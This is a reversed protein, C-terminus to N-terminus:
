QCTASGRPRQGVPLVQGYCAIEAARRREDQAAASRAAEADFNRRAEVLGERYRQDSAEFRQELEAAERANRANEETMDRVTIHGNAGGGSVGAGSSSAGAESMALLVSSAWANQMEMEQTRQRNYQAAADGLFGIVSLLSNGLSAERWGQARWAAVRQAAGPYGAQEARRMWSFAVDNDGRDAALGAVKMASEGDGARAARTWWKEAEAEDERVAWGHWHFRAVARMSPVHGTLASAKYFDYARQVDDRQARRDATFRTEVVEAYRYQADAVGGEAARMFLGEATWHSDISSLNSLLSPDRIAMDGALYSATANGNRAATFYYNFVEPHDPRYREAYIQGLRVAAHAWQPDGANDRSEYFVSYLKRARDVDRPGRVGLYFVEAIRPLERNLWKEDLNDSLRITRLEGWDALSECWARNIRGDGFCREKLEVMLLFRAVPDGNERYAARMEERREAVRATRLLDKATLPRIVDLTLGWRQLGADRGPPAYRFLSDFLAGRETWFFPRADPIVTGVPAVPSPQAAAPSAAGMVAALFM